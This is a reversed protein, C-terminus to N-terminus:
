NLILVELLILLNILGFVIAHQKLFHYLELPVLVLKQTFFFFFVFFINSVEHTSRNPKWHFVDAEEWTFTRLAHM